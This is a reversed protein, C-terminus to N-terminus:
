GMALALWATVSQPLRTGAPRMNRSLMHMDARLTDRMNLAVTRQSAM